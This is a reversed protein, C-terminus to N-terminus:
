ATVMLKVPKGYYGQICGKLAEGYAVRVKEAAFKNVAGIEFTNDQVGMLALDKFYAQYSARPIEREMDGMAMQWAKLQEPSVAADSLSADDKKREEERETDIDIKREKQTVNQQVDTVPQTVPEQYYKNRKKDDRYRQVRENVDLKSQRKSFNTVFWGTETQKVLGLKVLEDLDTQLEDAPMRLMWAIQKTEPIEGNQDARGAILCLEYFRRWLRDPLTAMKPDDLVEHYFKIWFGAM